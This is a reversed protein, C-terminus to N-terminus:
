TKYLNLTDMLGTLAGGLCVLFWGRKKLWELFALWFHCCLREGRKCCKVIFKLKNLRVNKKFQIQSTVWFNHIVYM